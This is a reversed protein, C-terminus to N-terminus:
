LKSTFIFYFHLRTCQASSQTHTGTISAIQGKKGPGFPVEGKEERAGTVGSIMKYLFPTSGTTFYDVTSILVQSTLFQRM